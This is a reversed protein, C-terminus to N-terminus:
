TEVIIFQMKLDAEVDKAVETDNDEEEETAAAEKRVDEEEKEHRKTLEKLLHFTAAMKATTSTLVAVAVASATAIRGQRKNKMYFLIGGVCVSQINNKAM